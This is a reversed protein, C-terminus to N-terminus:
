LPIDYWTVTIYDLKRVFRRYGGEDFLLAGKIKDLKSKSDTSSNGFMWNWWASWSFIKELIFLYIHQVILKMGLFYKLNGSDKTYFKIRLFQKLEMIGKQNNDINIVDDIYFILFIMVVTSKKYFVSFDVICKLLVFWDCVSFISWVLCAYITKIWILINSSVYM